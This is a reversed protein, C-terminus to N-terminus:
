IVVHKVYASTHTEAIPRNQQPDKQVDCRSGRLQPNTQSAGTESESVIAECISCQECQWVHAHQPFTAPSYTAWTKGGM